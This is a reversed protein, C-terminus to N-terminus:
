KILNNFAERLMRDEEMKKDAVKMAYSLVSYDYEFGDMKLYRIMEANRIGKEKAARFFLQRADALEQEKVNSLVQEKTFGYLQCVKDLLKYFLEKKM